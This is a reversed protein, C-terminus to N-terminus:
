KNLIRLSNPYLNNVRNSIRKAFGLALGKCLVLNMGQEFKAADVDGKRLYCLADQEQLEVVNVADRRLEVFLALAGDPRLVGKFLEGMAVGSYIVRTLSSLLEIDERRSAYCAYLMEGARYFHMRQPNVVWRELERREAKDVSMMPSKVGRKVARRSPEDLDARKRVIACFFGEGKARHPFFRYTNFDGVNGCVIGWSEAGEVRMVPETEGEVYKAFDLLQEEDEERNFTCTSYILVGGPRLSSWVNRLLERQIAACQAIGRESWEERSSPLRRFMGEGSCPADIAVVDFWEKLKAFDRSDSTTVAVNGIGWKRVNDALIQARRGVVENAVVLGDVGVLSSYLTSKGGPAACLDLVRGGQISEGELLKGVFQSSAEQVYYAGAHFEVDLTFSPREGVYYGLDSWAIPELDRMSSHKEPHLRIATPSESDLSRCLAAAESEGLQEFIREKFREPLM